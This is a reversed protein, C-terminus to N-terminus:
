GVIHGLRLAAVRRCYPGNKGIFPAADNVLLCSLIGFHFYKAGWVPTSGRVKQNVVLHKFRQAKGVPSHDRSLFARRDSETGPPNGKWGACGRFSPTWCTSRKPQPKRHYPM